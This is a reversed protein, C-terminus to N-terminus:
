VDDGASMSSLCSRASSTQRNPQLQAPKTELAVQLEDEHPFSNNVRKSSWDRKPSVGSLNLTTQGSNDGFRSQLGLLTLMIILLSCSLVVVLLLRVCM